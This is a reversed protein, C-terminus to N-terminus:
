FISENTIKRLTNDRDIIYFSNLLPSKDMYNKDNSSPPTNAYKLLRENQDIIKENLAYLFALDRSADAEEM